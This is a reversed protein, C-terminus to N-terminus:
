SARRFDACPCGERVCPEPLNRPSWDNLATAAEARGVYPHAKTSHACAPDACLAVVSMGAKRDYFAAKYFVAIREEGREDVVYSWMDHESGRRGWGDPLTAHVFLPDGDVPDGFSVGLAEIAARDIMEYEQDPNPLLQSRVLEQQGRREMAEIPRYGASSELLIALGQGSEKVREATNTVGSLPRGFMDMVREKDELTREVHADVEAPSSKIRQGRAHHVAHAEHKGCVCMTFYFGEENRVFDHPRFSSPRDTITM